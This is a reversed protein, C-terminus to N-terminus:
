YVNLTCISRLQSLAEISYQTRIVPVSSTFSLSFVMWRAVLPMGVTNVADDLVTSISGSVGASVM